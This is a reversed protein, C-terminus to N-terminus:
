QTNICDLTKINDETYQNSRNQTPKEILATEQSQHFQNEIYLSILPGTDVKRRKKEELLSIYFYKPAVTM